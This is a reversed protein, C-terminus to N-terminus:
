SPDIPLYAFRDFACDNLRQKPLTETEQNKALDLLLLPGVVPQLKAPRLEVQEASSDNQEAPLPQRM